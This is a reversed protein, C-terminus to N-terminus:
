GHLAARCQAGSFSVVQHQGMFELLVKVRESKSELVKASLGKFPGEVIDVAAGAEFLEGPGAQNFTHELTKLHEILQPQAQALEVGFRVLKAVGRTSHLSSLSQDAASPRVFVYRPFMPERKVTVQGRVVKRTQVMPCYVEFQQRRMHEAAILELSPKCFVLRWETVGM